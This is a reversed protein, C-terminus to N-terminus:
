SMLSILVDTQFITTGPGLGGTDAVHEGPGQWSSAWHWRYQGHSKKVLSFVVNSAVSIPWPIGWVMGLGLGVSSTDAMTDGPSMLIILKVGNTNAFSIGRVQALVTDMGLGLEVGDTNVMLDRPCMLLSLRFGDNDVVPDRPGLILSLRFGGNGVM